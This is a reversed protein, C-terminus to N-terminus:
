QELVKLIIMLWVFENTLEDKLVEHILSRQFKTKPLSSAIDIDRTYRM